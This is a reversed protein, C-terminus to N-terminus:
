ENPVTNGVREAYLEYDEALRVTLQRKIIIEGEAEMSVEAAMLMKNGQLEPRDSSSVRPEQWGLEHYYPLDQVLTKHIFTQLITRQEPQDTLILMETVSRVLRSEEQYTIGTLKDVYCDNLHGITEPRGSPVVREKILIIPLAHDDALAAREEIPIYSGDDNFEPLEGNSVARDLHYRLRAKIVDRALCMESSSLCNPIALVSVPAEYANLDFDYAYIYYYMNTADNLYQSELDLVQWTPTQNANTFSYEKYTLEGQFILRETAIKGYQTKTVSDPDTPATPNISAIVRVHTGEPAPIVLQVAGGYTLPVAYITELIM